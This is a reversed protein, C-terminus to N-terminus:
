GAAQTNRSCNVTALAKSTWDCLWRSREIVLFNETQDALDDVKAANVRHGSAECFRTLVASVLSAQM